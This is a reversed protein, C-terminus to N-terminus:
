SNIISEAAAGHAKRVADLWAQTKAKARVIDHRTGVKGVVGEFTIGPMEGRYVQEVFGRTWNYQGLFSATPVREEFFKRFEQPNLFGKKDVAVDFLSIFKEDNEFHLGALSKKGWFEYYVIVSFWRHTMAIRELPEALTQEFLKPVGALMPNSDDLLGAKRGHKYWGQKRNWESRCQSGDLKDFVLAGPIERFSTGFSRPISPYERM